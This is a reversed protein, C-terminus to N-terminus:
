KIYRSCNEKTSIETRKLQVIKVMGPAITPVNTPNPPIGGGEIQEWNLYFGRSTLGWDSHFKVLM